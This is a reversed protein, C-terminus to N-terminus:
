FIIPKITELLPRRVDKHSKKTTLFM